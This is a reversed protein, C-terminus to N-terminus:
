CVVSVFYLLIYQLLRLLIYIHSLLNIYLSNHNSSGYKSTILRM